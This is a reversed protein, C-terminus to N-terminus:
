GNLTEMQKAQRKIYAKAATVAAGMNGYYLEDNTTTYSSLRKTVKNLWTGTPNHCIYPLGRIGININFEGIVITEKAMPVGDSEKM